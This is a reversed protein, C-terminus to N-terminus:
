QKSCTTTYQLPLRTSLSCGHYCPSTMTCSSTGCYASPCNGPVCFDSCACDDAPACYTVSLGCNVCYATYVVFGAPCTATTVCALSLAAGAAANALSTATQISASLTGNLARVATTVNSATENRLGVFRAQTDNILVALQGSLTANLVAVSAGAASAATSVTENVWSRLQFNAASAADTTNALRAELAAIAARAAALDARLGALSADVLGQIAAQSLGGSSAAADTPTAVTTTHTAHVAGYVAVALATVSLVLCLVLLVLKLRDYPRAGHPTPLSTLGPRDGGGFSRRSTNAGGAPKTPSLDLYPQPAEYSDTDASDGAGAVPVLYYHDKDSGVPRTTSAFAYLPGTDSSSDSVTPRRLTSTAFSFMPMDQNLTGAANAAPRASRFSVSHVDSMADSAATSSNHLVDRGRGGGVAVM